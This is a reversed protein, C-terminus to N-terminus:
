SDRYPIVRRSHRGLIQGGLGLAVMQDTELTGGAGAVSSAITSQTVNRKVLLPFTALIKLLFVRKSPFHFPFLSALLYSPKLCTWSM